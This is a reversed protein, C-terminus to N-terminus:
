LTLHLPQSPQMRLMLLLVGIRHRLPRLTLALAFPQVHLCWRCRTVGVFFVNM